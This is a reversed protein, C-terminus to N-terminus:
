KEYKNKLEPEVYVLPNSDKWDQPLQSLIREREEKPLSFIYDWYEETNYELAKLKM